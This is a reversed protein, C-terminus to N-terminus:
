PAPALAPALGHSKWVAAAEPRKLFAIFAKAGAPDAAKAMVAASIDVYAGLGAPLAAVVELERHPLVESEFQLAMDGEGNILGSAGNGKSSIVRHVGAFEPRKLLRDIMAAGMSGRKPDPNSYVVGGAARLVAALRAVTSIDPHPAGARVALSINVRGIKVVSGPAIDAGMGALLDPTAFVIDTAAGRAAQPVKLLETARVSVKGGSAAAFAGAQETLGAHALVPPTVVELAVAPTVALGLLIAGALFERM